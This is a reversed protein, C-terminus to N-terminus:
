VLSKSPTATFHRCGVQGSTRQQRRTRILNGRGGIPQTSHGGRDGIYISPWSKYSNKGSKDGRIALATRM